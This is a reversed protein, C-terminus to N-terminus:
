FVLLFLKNTDFPPRCSLTEKSKYECLDVNANYSLLLKVCQENGEEAALFLPTRDRYDLADVTAGAELYAQCLEVDGAKAAEHLPTEDWNNRTLTDAIKITSMVTSLIFM